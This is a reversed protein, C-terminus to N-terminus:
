NWYIISAEKPFNQELLEIYQTAERSSYKNRCPLRNVPQAKLAEHILLNIHSRVLEDKFTYLTCQECIMKQFIMALFGKREDTINFIPPQKDALLQSKLALHLGENECIFEETFVCTYSPSGDPVIEWSFPIEPKAIILVAGDIGITDNGVHIFGHGVVLSIKFFDRRKYIQIIRDYSEIQYVKFGDIKLQTNFDAIHVYRDAM